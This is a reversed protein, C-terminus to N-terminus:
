SIDLSFDDKEILPLDCRFTERYIREAAVVVGDRKTLVIGIRGYKLRANNDRLWCILEELDVPQDKM